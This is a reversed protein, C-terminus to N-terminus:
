NKYCLFSFYLYSVRGCFYSPVYLPLDTCFLLSLDLEEEPWPNLLFTCFERLVTVTEEPLLKKSTLIPGLKTNMMDRNQRAIIGIEKFQQRLLRSYGDGTGVGGIKPSSLIRTKIIRQVFDDLEQKLVETEETM